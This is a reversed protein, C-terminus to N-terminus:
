GKASLFMAKNSRPRVEEVAKPDALLAAHNEIVHINTAVIIDGLNDNLFDEINRFAM